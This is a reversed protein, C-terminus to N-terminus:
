PLLTVPDGSSEVIQGRIQTKAVSPPLRGPDRTSDIVERNIQTKAARLVVSSIVGIFDAGKVGFEDQAIDWPLNSLPSPLRLPEPPHSAGCREQIRRAIFYDPNRARWITLRKKKLAQQCETRGCTRQRKGVRVNPRFWRHCICCPKKTSDSM